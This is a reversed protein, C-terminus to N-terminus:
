SQQVTTVTGRSTKPDIDTLHTLFYDVSALNEISYEFDISWANYTQPVIETCYNYTIICRRGVLEKKDETYFTVPEGDNDFYPKSPKTEVESPLYVVMRVKFINKQEQVREAFVMPAIPYDADVTKLTIPSDNLKAIQLNTITISM